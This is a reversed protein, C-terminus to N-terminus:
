YTSVTDSDATQKTMNPLHNTKTNIYIPIDNPNKFPLFKGAILNYAVDLFDAQIFNSILQLRKAVIMSSKSWKKQKTCPNGVKKNSQVVKPTM